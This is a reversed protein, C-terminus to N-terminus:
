GGQRSEAYRFLPGRFPLAEGLHRITFKFLGHSVLGSHRAPTADYVSAEMVCLNGLVLFQPLAAFGHWRRWVLLSLEGAEVFTSSLLLMDTGELLRFSTFFQNGSNGFDHGRPKFHQCTFFCIRHDGRQGLPNFGM